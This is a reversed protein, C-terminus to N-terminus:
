RPPSPPPNAPVPVPPSQQAPAHVPTPSHTLHNVVSVVAVVLAVVALLALVALVTRRAQQEEAARVQAPPRPSVDMASAAEALLRGVRAPFEPHEPDAGALAPM